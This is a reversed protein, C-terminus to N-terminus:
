FSIFYGLFLFFYKKVYFYCHPLMNVLMKAGFPARESAKSMVM